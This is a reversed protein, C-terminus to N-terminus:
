FEVGGHKGILQYLKLLRAGSGVSIRQVWKAEEWRTFWRPGFGKKEGLLHTEIVSSVAWRGLVLPTFFGGRWSWLFQISTIPAQQRGSGEWAVSTGMAEQSAICGTSFWLRNSHRSRTNVVTKPKKQQCLLVCDMQTKGMNTHPRSVALLDEKKKRHNSSHSCWMGLGALLQGSPSIKLLLELNQLFQSFPSTFNRQHQCVLSQLCPTPSM